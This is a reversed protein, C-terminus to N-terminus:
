VAIGMAALETQYTERNYESILEADLIETTEVEEIARWLSDPKKRKPMWEFADGQMFRYGAKCPAIHVYHENLFMIRSHESLGARLGKASPQYVTLKMQVDQTILQDSKVRIDTFRKWSGLRLADDRYSWQGAEAM